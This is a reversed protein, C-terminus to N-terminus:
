RDPESSVTANINPIILAILYITIWNVPIRAIETAQRDGLELKAEDPRRDIM